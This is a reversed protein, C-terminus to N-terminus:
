CVRPSHSCLNAPLTLVPPHRRVSRGAVLRPQCHVFFICFSIPSCLVPRHSAMCLHSQTGSLVQSNQLHAISPDIFMCVCECRIRSGCCFSLYPPLCCCVFPDLLWMASCISCSFYCALFLGQAEAYRIAEQKTDFRMRLQSFTGEAGAWGSLCHQTLSLCGVVLVLRVWLLIQTNLITTWWTLLGAMPGTVRFYAM